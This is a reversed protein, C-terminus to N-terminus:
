DGNEQLSVSWEHMINWISEVIDAPIGYTTATALRQAIMQEKRAEDRVPLHEAEKVQAIRESIEARKRMLELIEQDIADIEARLDKLNM